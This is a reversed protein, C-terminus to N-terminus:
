SQTFDGACQQKIYSFASYIFFAAAILFATFYATQWHRGNVELM